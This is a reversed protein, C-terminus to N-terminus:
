EHGESEIGQVANLIEVLDATDRLMVDRIAGQWGIPFHELWEDLALRGAHRLAEIGDEFEEGDTTQYITCLRHTLNVKAM